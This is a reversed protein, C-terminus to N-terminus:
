PISGGNVGYSQGTIFSAEDSCLYMCTHAIDDGTGLRGVPVRTPGIDDPHIGYAAMSERYMPTDIYHPAIDNATIGLPAYDTAVARMLAVVGGKSAAYHAHRPTGIQAASSSITVIRGWRAAVMDPIVAQICHFTGTLNVALVQGWSEASIEILDDVPAIAASTVLIEVPGLDRRVQALASDVDARDAVDVSYAVARAGVACLESAVAAARDGNVDLVAVRNGQRALHQCISLGMGSAGGTVVAVRTM